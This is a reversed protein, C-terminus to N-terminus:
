NTPPALVLLSQHWCLFILPVLVGVHLFAWTNPLNFFALTLRTISHLSPSVSCHREMLVTTKKVPANQGGLSGEVIGLSVKLQWVTPPPAAPLGHTSAVFAIFCGLISVFGQVVSFTDPGLCWYHPSLSVRWEGGLVGWAGRYSGNKYILMRGLIQSVFTIDAHTNPPFMHSLFWICVGVRSGIVPVDQPFSQGEQRRLKRVHM